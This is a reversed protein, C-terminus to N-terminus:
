KKTYDYFGKGVKQGYAGAYYRESLVMSPREAPDGGSAEYAERGQIYALDIGTLDMLQFPGMPHNLGYKIANDIDQVSAIGLDALLQADRHFAKLMHNVIFGDIEKNVVAPIKDLKKALDVSIEVTEDSTMPNRVIEVLKMVLAPNFYHFNCIKEPRNTADMIKSSPIFSSNTGFICHPPAFKDLDAFIKRKAAIMEVATEIIYDADKCAAELNDVFTLNAARDAIEQTMKGKAVRDAPYSKAFAAAKALASESIDFCATEYGALAAGLAIQHGMNGAGVVVIKKIDDVKM